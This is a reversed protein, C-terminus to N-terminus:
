WVSVIGFSGSALIGLFNLGILKSLQQKLIKALISLLLNTTTASLNIAEFWVAKM